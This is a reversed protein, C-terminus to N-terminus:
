ASTASIGDRLELPEPGLTVVDFGRPPNNALFENISEVTLDSITKNIEDLSRVRGLHFWDAAISGSRSRCSEQQMVLGSRIQVKLRDLESQEVGRGLEILQEILVDLTQQARDASTGSYCVVAGQERVSHCSAFVTYCLGRKERVERFLRSSMGDSLVGIAARYKYYEPSSYPIGPFAIAIHTQNSDFPFHHMGHQPAQPQPEAITKAQWDGFLAAVHARLQHFDFNGAVALILGNPRYYQSVFQEIDAQEIVSVTELDGEAIRGLPDGYHRKRLEIMTRQALDDDIARIEQICVARGDELQDVPLHPRRIVDAFISIADLLETKKMAGGFRTHYISCASSYDVGLSELAEIYGRSDLEGCGRQVMECAFNALGLKAQPDHQCGAPVFISFAASELWPMPQGVLTLGNDFLHHFVEQQHM